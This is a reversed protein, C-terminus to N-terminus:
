RSAAQQQRLYADSRRLPESGPELALGEQILAEARAYDGQRSLEISWNNLTALLNERAELHQPDLQWSRHTSRLAQEYDGAQAFEIGLNYYVRGLLAADSLVQSRARGDGPSLRWRRDTTEVEWAIGDLWLRVAVHNPAAAAEARLGGDRCLALYWYTATLCNYTGDELTAQLRACTPEYRGTLIRSHLYAFAEQAIEREGAGAPREARAEALRQQAERRFRARTVGTALPDAAVASDLLLISGRPEWGSRETIQRRASIAHRTDFTADDGGLHPAALGSQCLALLSLM